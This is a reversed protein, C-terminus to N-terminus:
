GAVSNDITSSIFLVEYVLVVIYVVYLIACFLLYILSLCLSVSINDTPLFPYGINCKLM